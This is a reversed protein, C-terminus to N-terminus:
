SPLLIAVLLLILALASIISTVIVIATQIVSEDSEPQEVGVTFDSVPENVSGVAGLPSKLQAASVTATSVPYLFECGALMNDTWVVRIATARAEPIDVVLTEGVALGLVTEMLLGKESINLIVAMAVEGSSYASVGLRLTRRVAAREDGILRETLIEASLPVM